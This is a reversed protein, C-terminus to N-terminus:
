KYKKGKNISLKTGELNINLLTKSIELSKKRNDYHSLDVNKDDLYVSNTDNCIKNDVNRRIEKKKEDGQIIPVCRDGWINEQENLFFM